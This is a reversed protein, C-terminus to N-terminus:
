HQDYVGTDTYCSNVAHHQTVGKIFNILKQHIVMLQHPINDQVQLHRGQEINNILLNIDSHLKRGNENLEALEKIKWALIILEKESQKSSQLKESYTNNFKILGLFAVASLILIVSFM